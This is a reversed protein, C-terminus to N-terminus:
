GLFKLNFTQGRLFTGSNIRTCKWNKPPNLYKKLVFKLRSHAGSGSPSGKAGLLMNTLCQDTGMTGVTGM